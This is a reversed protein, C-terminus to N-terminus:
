RVERSNGAPRSAIADHRSAVSRVTADGTQWCRWYQWLALWSSSVALRWAPRGRGAGAGAQGGTLSRLAVLGAIGPSRLHSSRLGRRCDWRGPPGTREQHRQLRLMSDQVGIGPTTMLPHGLRGRQGPHVQRSRGVAPVAPRPAPLFAAPSGPGCCVVLVHDLFLPIQACWRQSRWAQWAVRIPSGAAPRGPEVDSETILRTGPKRASGGDSVAM